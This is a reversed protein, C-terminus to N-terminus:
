NLERRALVEYRPREGLHSAILVCHDVIWDIPEFRAPRRGPAAARCLTVHPRFPAADAPVGAAAALGNVRDRLELLPAPPRSPGVWLIRPRGFRGVRDLRLACPPHELRGLADRLPRLRDAPADGLFRLTLHLRDGAVPREGARALARQLQQLRRRTAADPLAAFFLRLSGSM